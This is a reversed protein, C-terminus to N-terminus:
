FTILILTTVFINKQSKKLNLFQVFPILSFIACFSPFYCYRDAILCYTPSIIHLYPAMSFLFCYSFFFPFLKNRKFIFIFLVPSIIFFLFVVLSFLSYLSLDTESLKVFHTQYTSLTKPFFFLKLFHIFIQPSLWIIREISFNLPSYYNGSINKLHLHNYISFLLFVFAGAFFPKCLSYSAKLSEKVQNKEKYTISCSIIYIIPIIVISYESVLTSSFFLLTILSTRILSFEFEKKITKTLILHIFYFCITYNLLSSWNTGLLIAESNAPHLAWILTLASSFIFVRARSVNLFTLFEIFIILVFFSNILHLALSILHYYLFNKKFLFLAAIYLAAGLPNSRINIINSFFTNNSETHYNFAFLSISEIAESITNTIPFIGEDQIIKEDFYQWDRNLSFSYITFIILLVIVASILRYGQHNKILDSFKRSYNM